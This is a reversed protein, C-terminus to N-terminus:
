QQKIQSWFISLKGAGNVSLFAELGKMISTIEKTSLAKNFLAVEDLFGEVYRFYHAMFVLPYDHKGYTAKGTVATAGDEKGDVIMKVKDGAKMAVLHHWKGDNVKTTGVARSNNNAENRLYFDMSGAPVFYVLYWPKTNSKDHYGKTVIGLSGPAPMESKLWFAISFDGAFEFDKSDPIEVYSESGDFELGKGFKGNKTWKVKGVLKGDHGRKSADVVKNGKGSEFLWAGALGDVKALTRNLGSLLFFATFVGVLFVIRRVM